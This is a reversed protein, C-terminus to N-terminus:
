RRPAQKRSLDLDQNSWITLDHANSTYASIPADRPITQAMGHEDVNGDDGSFTDNSNREGAPAASAAGLVIAVSLAIKTKTFM